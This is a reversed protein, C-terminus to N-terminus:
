ATMRFQLAEAVHDPAIDNAGDLDAITRAVKRTREYGRASLGLRQVAASLLRLSKLDLRCHQAMMSPTLRANASVPTGAYRERQRQRAAIVRARVVASTEGSTTQGLVDPPLAPVDVGLDLRDRLPGSLRSRYRDVQMPTCRCEREPSGAFGCPCGRTAM